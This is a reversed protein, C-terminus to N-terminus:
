KQQIFPVKLSWLLRTPRDDQWEALGINMGDHGQEPQDTYTGFVRDWIPLNFGYNSDTEKHIISHHVRHMDPTVVVFRLIRDAWIPLKLNSHNFMATANLVIEFILVSIAPAGLAIVIIIKWLMSLLIEIPHFRIATSVDIDVDSHHMRHVVWLIPVKHSAWHAFWIAFDLVVFCILVSVWVPVSILNFLGIGSSSAWSAAGVAAGIFVLRLVATDILVIAWNTFWRRSKPAKLDRRPALFELVALLAFLGAFVGLRIQPETLEIM